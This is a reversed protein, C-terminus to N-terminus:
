IWVEAEAESRVDTATLVALNVGDRRMGIRGSRVFETIGFPRLTQVTRQIDAESGTQELVVAGRDRSIVTVPMTKIVADIEASEQVKFMAVERAILEEDQCLLVEHVDVIRRIQRTVKEATDPDSRVVITFRSVGETETESVTLSEVNMKRRTFIVTIRHLIGPSNNSYICLTFNETNM